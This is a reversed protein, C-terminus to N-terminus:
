RWILLCKWTPVSAQFFSLELDANRRSRIKITYLDVNLQNVASQINHISVETDCGDDIHLALPNLGYKRSIYLTYISDTGGSIGVLCDYKGNKNKKIDNIIQQFKQQTKENQPFEQEILDYNKCLSCIGDEDFSIGPIATDCVCRTCVRLETM